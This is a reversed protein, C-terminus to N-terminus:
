GVHRTQGQDADVGVLLNLVDGIAQEHGTFEPLPLHAQIEYRSRRGDKTKIVYGADTLDSVIAYARRETIDLSAGIDRLRALPDRAIYLLARGHNTLFTWNAM